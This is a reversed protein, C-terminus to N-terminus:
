GGAIAEFVAISDGNSLHTDCWDGQPIVQNNLAVAFAQNQNVSQNNKNFIHESLFAKLSEDKAQLLLETNNLTVRM